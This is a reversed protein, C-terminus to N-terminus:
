LFYRMLEGTEVDAGERRKGPNVSGHLLIRNPFIAVNLLPAPIDLSWLFSFPFGHMRYPSSYVVYVAVFIVFTILLVFKGSSLRILLTAFSTMIGDEPSVASSIAVARHTR